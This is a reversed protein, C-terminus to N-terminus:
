DADLLVLFHNLANITGIDKHSGKNITIGNSKCLNLFVDLDRLVFVYDDINRSNLNILKIFNKVTKTEMSKKSFDYIPYTNFEDYDAPNCHYNYQRPNELLEKILFDNGIGDM